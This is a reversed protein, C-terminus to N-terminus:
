IPYESIKVLDCFKTLYPMKKYMLYYNCPPIRAVRDPNVNLDHYVHISHLIKYKSALNFYNLASIFVNLSATSTSISADCHSNHRRVYM